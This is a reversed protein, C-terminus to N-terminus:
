LRRRTIGLQRLEGNVAKVRGDLAELEAAIEFYPSWHRRRSTSSAGAAMRLAVASIARNFSIYPPLRGALTRPALRCSRRPQRALSPYPSMIAFWDSGSSPQSPSLRLHCHQRLRCSIAKGRSRKRKSFTRCAPSCGIQVQIPTEACSSRDRTLRERRHPLSSRTTPLKMTPSSPM